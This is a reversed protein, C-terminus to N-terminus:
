AQGEAAVVLASVGKAAKDSAVQADYLVRLAYVAVFVAISGVVAFVFIRRVDMGDDAAYPDHDHAGQANSMEHVEAGSPANGVV